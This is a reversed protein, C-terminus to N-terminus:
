VASFFFLNFVGRSGVLNLMFFEIWVAMRMVVVIIGNRKALQEVSCTPLPSMSEPSPTIIRRKKPARITPVIIWWIKM